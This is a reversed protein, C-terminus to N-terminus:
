RAIGALRDATREVGSVLAPGFTAAFHEAAPGVLSSTQTIVVGDDSDVLELRSELSVTSAIETSSAYGRGEEVSLLRFPLPEGDPPTLRGTTGTAFPGDLALQQVASNWRPWSEPACILPWLGSAAGQGTRRAQHTTVQTTVQDQSM